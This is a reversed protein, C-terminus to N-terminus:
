LCTPDIRHIKYEPRVKQQKQAYRITGYTGGKEIGNWVALLCDSNDIIWRDRTHMKEPAYSGPSVIVVKEALSLLHKFIRKTDDPWMSDQGEFPVAAIFPINLEIAAWCSITDTGLAMGSIIKEPSLEHFKDVIAKYVKDYVPNPIEYGCGLGPPRHGSIGVINSM